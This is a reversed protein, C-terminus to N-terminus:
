EPEFAATIGICFENKVAEAKIIEEIEIKSYKRQSILDAIAQTHKEISLITSDLHIRVEDKKTKGYLVANNEQNRNFQWYDFASFLLLCSFIVLLYVYFSKKKFM